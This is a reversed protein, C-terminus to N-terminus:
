SSWMGSSAQIYGGTASIRKVADSKQKESPEIGLFDILEEVLKERNSLVREYPVLLVPFDACKAFEWNKRQDELVEDYVCKFPRHLDENTMMRRQTIALPDRHILILKFNRLYPLFPELRGGKILHADKWGWVSLESNRQKIQSIAAKVGRKMGQDEFNNNRLDLVPGMDIGVGHVVAAMMTTGGRGCGAVAVTMTSDQNWSPSGLNLTTTIPIDRTHFDLEAVAVGILRKQISIKLITQGCM